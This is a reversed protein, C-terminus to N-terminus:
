SRQQVPPMEILGDMSQAVKANSVACAAAAAAKGRRPPPGLLFLLGDSEEEKGISELPIERLYFAESLLDFGGKEAETTITSTQGQMGFAISIVDGEEEPDPPNRRRDPRM